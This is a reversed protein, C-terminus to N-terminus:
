FRLRSALGLLGGIVLAWITLRSTLISRLLEPLAGSVKKTELGLETRNRLAAAKRGERHHEDLSM